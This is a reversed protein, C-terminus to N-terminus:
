FNQQKFIVSLRTYLQLRMTAQGHKNRHDCFRRMHSTTSIVTVKLGVM